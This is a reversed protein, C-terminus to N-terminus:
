DPSLVDVDTRAFDNGVCLIPLSSEVALAYTFCDAYNLAAPHRGKGFRRWGELAREAVGPEVPVVDIEADRTFRMATGTGVPGLRSEIVIGLEVYSAASIYRRDALALTRVLWEAGDEGTLVAIAASTDVVLARGDTM